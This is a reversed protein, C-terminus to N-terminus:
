VVSSGTIHRRRSSAPAAATIGSPAGMPEPMPMRLAALRRMMTSCAPTGTITSAPTPVAESAAMAMSIPASATRMFVPMAPALSGTRMARAIFSATSAPQSAAWAPRM